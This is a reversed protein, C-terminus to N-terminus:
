LRKGGRQPPEFDKLDQEPVLWYGGGPTEVLRANPFLKNHIWRLVTTRNKKKVKAIEQITFERM